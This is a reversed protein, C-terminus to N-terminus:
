WSLTKMRTPEESGNEYIRIEASGTGTFRVLADYNLPGVATFQKDGSETNTRDWNVEDFFFVGDDPASIIVKLTTDEPLEARLSYEHDDYAEDMASIEVDSERLINDGNLGTEPYVILPDKGCEMALLSFILMISFPFFLKKM